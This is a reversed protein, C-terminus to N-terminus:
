LQRLAVCLFLLRGFRDALAGHRVGLGRTVWRWKASRRCPGYRYLLALLILVILALLPWRAVRVMTEFTDSYGAYAFLIPVYVIALLMLAGSLIGLIAFTFASLYFRLLSRREPEEYAINLAAFM